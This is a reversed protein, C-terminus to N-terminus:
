LLLYAVKRHPYAGFGVGLLIILFRFLWLFYAEGCVKSTRKLQCYQDFTKHVLEPGTASSFNLTVMEVDPLSRLVSTLTMSKGSGPPGCLLVPRRDALWSGLVEVHRTTDVTPIVIDPSGVQHPMVDLIPVEDRWLGWEGTEMSVRYDLLPPKDGGCKPTEGSFISALHEGYEERKRLPLSGGFGWLLSYLMRNSFYKELVSGRLPFDSHLSNHEIVNRVGKNLLAFFSNLSQLRTWEMIHHPSSSAYDYAMTALGQSGELFRRMIGVVERQVELGVMSETEHPELRERGAEKAANLKRDYVEKEQEDLPVNDLNLLYNEFIMPLSNSSESFWVMGCRSVTAPTAFKLDKVEFIIRVNDPMALREGTPLTLIKNDDLLSNLNEVWEPDVDGDFM